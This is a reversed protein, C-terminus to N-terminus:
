KGVVAVTAFSASGDSATLYESGVHLLKYDHEEIYHNISEALNGGVSIRCHECSTTVDTSIHVVHEIGEYINGSAM